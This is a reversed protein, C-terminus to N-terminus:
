DEFGSALLEEIDEYAGRDLPGVNNPIAPLDVNRPLGSIDVPSENGDAACRDLNSSGASLRYMGAEQDFFGPAHADGGLAGGEGTNLCAFQTTGNGQIHSRGTPVLFISRSLELATPASSVVSIAGAVFDNDVVTAFDMRLSSEGELSILRADSVNARILVNDLTVQATANARLVAGSSAINGELRTHSLNLTGSSVFAGAGSGVPTGAPGLLQNGSLRSCQDDGIACADLGRGLTATAGATIFLGAGTLQARNNEIWAGHATFQTGAGSLYVGGGRPSAEGQAINESISLRQGPWSQLSIVSETNAFIGAGETAANADIRTDGGDMTSLLQCGVGRVGGGVTAATNGRIQTAGLRM